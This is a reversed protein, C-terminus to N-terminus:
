EGGAAKLRDIVDNVIDIDGDFRSELLINYCSMICKEAVECQARWEDRSSEASEARSLADSLQVVLDSHNKEAAELEEQIREADSEAAIRRDELGDIMNKARDLKSRLDANEQKLEKNEETTTKIDISIKDGNKDRYFAKAPM